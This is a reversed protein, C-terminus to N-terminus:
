IPMSLNLANFDVAQYAQVLTTGNTDSVDEPILGTSPDVYAVKVLWTAESSGEFEYAVRWAILGDERAVPEGTIGKCLYTLPAAGLWNLSNIKNTYFRSKAEPNFLELREFRRVSVAANKSIEAVQVDDGYRVTIIDGFVDFNTVVGVVSTGVTVRSVGTESPVQQDVDVLGPDFPPDIGGGGGPTTTNPRWTVTVRVIRKGEVRAVRNAVVYGDFRQSAEGRRPIRSDELANRLLSQLDNGDVDKLLYELVVNRDDPSAGDSATANSVLEEFVTAM